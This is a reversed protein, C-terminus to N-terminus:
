GSELRPGLAIHLHRTFRSQLAPVLVESGNQFIGAPGYVESAGRQSAVSQVARLLTSLDEREVSSSLPIGNLEIVDFARTRRHSSQRCGTQSPDAIGASHLGEVGQMIATAAQITAQAVPVSGALAYVDVPPLAESAKPTPPFLTIEGGSFIAWGVELHAEWIEYRVSDPILEFVYDRDLVLRTEWSPLVTASVVRLGELRDLQGNLPKSGQGDGSGILLRGDHVLRWASDAIFSVEKGFLLRLQFEGTELSTIERGILRSLLDNARRVGENSM